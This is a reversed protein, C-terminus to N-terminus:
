PIAANRQRLQGMADYTAYKYLQGLTPYNFCAEIFVENTADCMLATLGVHVLETADEGVISVGLLRMGDPDFLLKLMGDQDGIIRGRADQGYYARGVVYDRSAATLSTETEGALGIEPITFIGM